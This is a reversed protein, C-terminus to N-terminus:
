LKLPPRVLIWIVIVVILGLVNFILTAVILLLVWLIGQKGRKEVDKYLWICILIAIILPILFFVCCLFIGLGVLTPGLVPFNNAWDEAWGPVDIEDQAQVATALIITLLLCILILLINRGKDM